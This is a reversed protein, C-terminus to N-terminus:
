TVAISQFSSLYTQFMVVPFSISDVAFLATLGFPQLPYKFEFGSPRRRAVNPTIGSFWTAGPNAFSRLDAQAEFKFLRIAPNAMRTLWRNDIARVVHGHHM